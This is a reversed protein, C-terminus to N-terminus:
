QLREMLLEALASSAGRQTEIWQRARHAAARFEDPAGLIRNVQDSMDKPSRVIRAAGLRGLQDAPGASNEVYPGHLVPAEQVAPELLSHGGGPPFLSNGVFAVSAIGYLKALEGMTDIVVVGAARAGPHFESWNQSHLGLGALLRRVEEVREIRRPALMLIARPHNARLIQYAEALVREEGSHTSGAVLVPDNLELGLRRRLLTRDEEPVAELIDYKTNPLIRIRKKGVGLSLFRDHTPLDEVTIFHFFNLLWRSVHPFRKWRRFSKQSMRAQALITQAGQLGAQSLMNPWYGTEMVLLASPRVRQVFRKVLWPHDLPAYLVARAFPFRRRAAELGAVTQTTIV